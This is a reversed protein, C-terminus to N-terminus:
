KKNKYIYSIENLNLKRRYIRVNGISGQFYNTITKGSSKSPKDGRNNAGLFLTNSLKRLNGGPFKVINLRSKAGDFYFSASSEPLNFIAIVHHWKEDHATKGIPSRIDMLIRDNTKAYLRFEGNGDQHSAFQLRNDGDNGLLFQHKNPSGSKYWVSISITSTRLNNVGTDHYDSYGNYTTRANDSESLYILGSSLDYSNDIFYMRQIDSVDIAKKSGNKLEIVLTEAFANFSLFIIFILAVKKM